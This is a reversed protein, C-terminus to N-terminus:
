FTWLSFLVYFYVYKTCNQIEHLPRLFHTDHFFFAHMEFHKQMLLFKDILEIKGSVNM